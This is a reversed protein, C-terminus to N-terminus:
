SKLAEACSTVSAISKPGGTAPKKTKPRKWKQKYASTRLLFYKVVFKGHRSPLEAGCPRCSVQRGVTEPSAEVKVIQYLANCNPCHFLVKETM